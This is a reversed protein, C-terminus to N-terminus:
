QGTADYGLPVSFVYVDEPNFDKLQHGQTGNEGYLDTYTRIIEGWLTTDLIHWAVVNTFQYSAGKDEMNSLDRYMRENQITLTKLDPPQASKPQANATTALATLLLLLCCNIRTRQKM